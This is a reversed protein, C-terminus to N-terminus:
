PLKKFKKFKKLNKLKFNFNFKGSLINLTKSTDEIDNQIDLYIKEFKKSILNLSKRGAFNTHVKNKLFLNSNKM